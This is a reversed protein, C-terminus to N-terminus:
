RNSDTASSSFMKSQPVGLATSIEERQEKTLTANSLSEIGDGITTVTVADTNVVKQAFANSLGTLIRSYWKELEEKQDASTGRPVGLITPRIAGRDFFATVFQAVSMQVGAAALAATGASATPPGVEVLPDPMWYYVIDDIPHSREAGNVTRKFGVLGNTPDIVPAVTSPILHRLGVTRNLANYTRFQYGYGFLCLSGEILKYLNKPDPLYGLVNKYDDSSDIEKDGRYISFPISAIAQQRLEVGRFLWPVRRRLTQLNRGDNQGRAIADFVPHGPRISGLNAKTNGDFYQLDYDAM